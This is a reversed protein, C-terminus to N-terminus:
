APQKQTKAIQNERDKFMKKIEPSQDVTAKNSNYLKYLDSKDNCADLSVNWMKLVEDAEFDTPKGTVVSETKKIITVPKPLDEKQGDVDEDATSIGLAAILTYRQLYTITSGRQQIENKGGSSDKSGSMTTKEYHGNIHSIVCTCIIKDTTDEMEWRHSLGNNSMAAKITAAIEGLPAYSYRTNGFAVKKTKELAPCAFQFKSLASLFEKRSQQAEWREQLGMLKELKDIDLNQQIAMQLLASPTNDIKAIESSM